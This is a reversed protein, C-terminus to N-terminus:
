SCAGHDVFHAVIVAQGAAQGGEQLPELARRHTEEVLVAHALDAEPRHALLSSSPGIMAEILLEIRCGVTNEATL